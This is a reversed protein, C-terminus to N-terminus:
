ASKLLESVDLIPIPPTASKPPIPVHIRGLMEDVRLAITASKALVILAGNGDAPARTSPPTTPISILSYLDLVTAGPIISEFIGAEGQAVDLDKLMITREIQATPLGCVQDDARLLEVEIADVLRPVRLTFSTGQGPESHISLLGHLAELKAQVADMGVGRGAVETIRPSLTFGPLLILSFAEEQTLTVRQESTILEQEYAAQLIREADLGQGDDRVEVLVEDGIQQARLQITGTREKGLREREEATEIGHAVANRTLHLLAENLEELLGRGLQIEEGEIIVRVVKGQEYALENVAHAYRRFLEGLPAMRLRWATEQLEKILHQRERRQAEVAPTPPLGGRRLVQYDNVALQAILNALQDLERMEIRVYSSARTEPLMLRAQQEKDADTPTDSGVGSDFNNSEAQATLSSLRDFARLLFPLTSISVSGGNSRMRELVDELEHASQTLRDYRMTASMGKLTHAARFAAELAGRDTPTRQLKTLEEGILALQEHAESFYLDRYDTLNFSM